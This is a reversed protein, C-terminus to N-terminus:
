KVNVIVLLPRDRNLGFYKSFRGLISSFSQEAHTGSNTSIRGKLLSMARADALGKADLMERNSSTPSSWDMEAIRRFFLFSASFHKCWSSDIEHMCLSPSVKLIFVTVKMSCISIEM